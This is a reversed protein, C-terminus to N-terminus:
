RFGRPDTWLPTKIVSITPSRFKRPGYAPTELGREIYKRITKRDVGTQRAIASVSMEQRRLDLIMVIGGFQKVAMEREVM